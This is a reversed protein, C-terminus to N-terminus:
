DCQVHINTVTVASYLFQHVLGARVIKEYIKQLEEDIVVTEDKPKRAKKWSIARDPVEGPELRGAKVQEFCLSM